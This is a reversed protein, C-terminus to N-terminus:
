PWTGAREHAHAPTTRAVNDLPAPLASRRTGTSCECRHSVPNRAGERMTRGERLIGNWLIRHSRQGEVTLGGPGSRHDVERRRAREGRAGDENGGLAVSVREPPREGPGAGRAGERSRPQDARERSGDLHQVRGADRDLAALLREPRRPQEREEALVEQELVEVEVQQARRAAPVLRERAGDGGELRRAQRRGIERAVRGVGAIESQQPRARRGLSAARERRRPDVQFRRRQERAFGTRPWELTGREGGHRPVLVHGERAEHAGDRRERQTYPGRPRRPPAVQLPQLRQEPHFRAARERPRDGDLRLPGLAVEERGEEELGDLDEGRRIPRPATARVSRDVELLVCADLRLQLRGRSPHRLLDELLLERQLLDRHQHRRLVRERLEDRLAQLPQGEVTPRERDM